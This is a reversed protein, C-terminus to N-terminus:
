PREGPRPTPDIDYREPLDCPPPPERKPETEPYVMGCDDCFWLSDSIPPCFLEILKGCRPCSPRDASM